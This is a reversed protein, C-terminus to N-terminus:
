PVPFQQARQGLACRHKVCVPERFLCEGARQTCMVRRCDFHARFDGEHKRNIAVTAGGNACDCCGNDVRICESDDNCTQYEEVVSDPLPRWYVSPTRACASLLILFPLFRSM